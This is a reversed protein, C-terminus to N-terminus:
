AGPFLAGAHAVLAALLMLLVSPVLLLAVVLQIKPAARAAREELARSAERRLGAAHDHLQDTLPSGYRRSRELAAVVTALEPGPVRRAMGELAEPRPAGCELEALVIALEGALPGGTAAAIEGLVRDPSRGAAVGVALLDLADPLAALVLARRRRATREVLAEPLLFGAGCLAFVVVPVLRAPAAPACASALLCGLLLGGLKGAVFGAPSIRAALGARELRAGVGVPLLVGLLRRGWTRDLLRSVRGISPGAAPRLEGALERVAVAALVIALGAALAPTV